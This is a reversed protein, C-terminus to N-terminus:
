CISFSRKQLAGSYSLCPRYQVTWAVEFEAGVARLECLRHLTRSGTVIEMGSIVFAELTNLRVTSVGLDGRRPLKRNLDKWDAVVQWLDIGEIM